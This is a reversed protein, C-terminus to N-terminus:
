RWGFFISATQKLFENLSPPRFPIIERITGRTKFVATVTKENNNVTIRCITSTRFSSCDGGWGQFTYGPSSSVINLTVPTSTSYSFTNTSNINNNPPNVNVTGAGPPNVGVTLIFENTQNEGGGGGGSCENNCNSTTYEGKLDDRVCSSGSCKYRPSNGPTSTKITIPVIDQYSGNTKDNRVIMKMSYNGANTYNCWLAYEQYQSDTPSYSSGSFDPNQSITKYDTSSNSENCWIWYTYNGIFPILYRIYISKTQGPNITTSITDYWTQPNSPSQDTAQLDFTGSSPGPSSRSCNVSCNYYDLYNGDPALVCAYNVCKYKDRQSASNVNVTVTAYASLNNYTATIIAQGQSIANVYGKKTPWFASNGVTAVSPNSSSWNSNNTVTIRTQPNNLGDPYYYAELQTGSDGVNFLLSSPVVQLTPQSSPPPPPQTGTSVTFNIYNSNTNGVIAYETWNGIVSSDFTGSKSWSGSENTNGYGTCGLNIKDQFNIKDQTACIQVSSNLINSSIRLTWSDGVRFSGSTVGNITLLAAPTSQNSSNVITTATALCNTETWDSNVGKICYTYTGAPVGLDTEQGSTNPTQNWLLNNKYIKVVSGSINSSTWSVRIDCPAQCIQPNTSITASPGTGVIYSVSNSQTDNYKVYVTWNGVDEQIFQNNYANWSNNSYIFNVQCGNACGGRGQPYAVAYITAPITDGNSPNPPLASGSITYKASEGVQYQTKDTSLDLKLPTPSQVNLTFNLTQPSDQANGGNLQDNGSITIQGNYSQQSPALSSNPVFVAQQSSAGFSFSAVSFVLFLILFIKNKTNM